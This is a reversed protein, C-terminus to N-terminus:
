GINGRSGLMSGAYGGLNALMQQRALKTQMDEAKRQGLYAMMGQLSGAQTGYAQQNLRLGQEFRGTGFQRGTGYARALNEIRNQGIQVGANGLASDFQSAQRGFRAGSLGGGLLGITPNIGARSSALNAAVRAYERNVMNPDQLLDLYKSEYRNMDAQGQNKLVEALAGLQGAYSSAMGQGSRALADREVDYPNPGKRRGFLGKGLFKAALIGAGLYPVGFLGAKGLGLQGIGKSISTPLTRSLGPTRDRVQSFSPGVPDSPGSELQQETVFQEPDTVWRNSDDFMALASNPQVPGYYNKSFGM